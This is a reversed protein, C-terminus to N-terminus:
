DTIRISGSCVDGEKTGKVWRKLEKTRQLTIATLESCHCMPFVSGYTEQKDKEPYLAEMEADRFVIWARQAEKFKEIFLADDKYIKLTQNYAANLENDAKRYQDCAQRNMDRQSQALPGACCLIIMITTAISFCVPKTM